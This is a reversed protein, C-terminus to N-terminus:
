AAISGTTFLVYPNIYGGSRGELEDPMDDAHAITVIFEINGSVSQQFPGAFSKTTTKELRWSTLGGGVIRSYVHYRVTAFLKVPVSWNSFTTGDDSKVRFKAYLPSYTIDLPQWRLTYINRGTVSDVTTELDFPYTGPTGGYELQNHDSTFSFVARRTTM